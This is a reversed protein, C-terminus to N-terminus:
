NINCHMFFINPLRTPSIFIKNLFTKINKQVNKLSNKYQLYNSM